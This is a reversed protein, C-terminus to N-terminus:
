YEWAYESEDSMDNENENDDFHKLAKSKKTGGRSSASEPMREHVSEFM